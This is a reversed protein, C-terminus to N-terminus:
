GRTPRPMKFGGYVYLPHRAGAETWKRLFEHGVIRKWEVKTYQDELEKCRVDDHSAVADVASQLISVEMHSLFQDGVDPFLSAVRPFLIIEARRALEGPTEKCCNRAHAHMELRQELVSEAVLHRRLAELRRMAAGVDCPDAPDDHTEIAIRHEPIGNARLVVQWLSTRYHEDTVEATGRDFHLYYHYQKTVTM